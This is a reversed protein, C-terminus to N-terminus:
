DSSEMTDVGHIDAQNELCETQPKKAWKLSKSSNSLSSVSLGFRTRVFKSVHATLIAVAPLCACIIGVAIEANTVLDIRKISWTKDTSNQYVVVWVLRIITVVCVLGGAALVLTVRLKKKFSMNLKSILVMPLILIMLDSVVSIITDTLFIELQRLCRGHTVDIGYWFTSIPQCICIKAITAAITYATLLASFIYIFIIWNRYPAFFRALMFLISLKVALIMPGYMVMQAYNTQFLTLDPSQLSANIRESQFILGPETKHCGM